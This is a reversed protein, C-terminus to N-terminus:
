SGSRKQGKALPQLAAWVTDALIRAGEATPHIGDRQNLADSGAVAITVSGSLALRGSGNQVSSPEPVVRLEAFTFGRGIIPPADSV